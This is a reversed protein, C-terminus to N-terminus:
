NHKTGRNNWFYVSAYTKGDNTVGIRNGQLVNDHIYARSIGNNSGATVFIGRFLGHVTNNALVIQDPMCAPSNQQLQIGTITSRSPGALGIITNRSVTIANCFNQGAAKINADSTGLQLYISAPNNTPQNVYRITNGSITINREAGNVTIAGNTTSAGSNDTIRNAVIAIDHSAVEGDQTTDPIKVVMPGGTLVTDAVSCANRAMSGGWVSEFFICGGQALKFIVNDDAVVQRARGVDIAAGPTGNFPLDHIRNHKIQIDVIPTVSSANLSSFAAIGLTLGGNAIENNVVSVHSNFSIQIGYLQGATGTALGGNLVKCAVIQIRQGPNRATASIWIGHGGINQCQVHDITIDRPATVANMAVCSERASRGSGGDLTLDHIRIHTPTAEANGLFTSQSTSAFILITRARSSGGVDCNNPVTLGTTGLSVVGPRITVRGSSTGNCAANIAAQLGAANLAHKEDAVYIMKTAPPLCSSVGSDNYKPQTGFTAALLLLGLSWGIDGLSM